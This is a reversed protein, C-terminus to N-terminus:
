EGGMRRILATISSENWGEFRGRQVVLRNADPHTLYYYFVFRGKPNQWGIIQGFRLDNFVVTDKWNEVTYFGKSFRILEHLDKHKQFPHLLTDQREEESDREAEQEVGEDVDPRHSDDSAEVAVFEVLWASAV